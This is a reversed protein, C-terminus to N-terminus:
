IGKTRKQRFLQLLQYGDTRSGIPILNGIGVMNLIVLWFLLWVLWAPGQHQAVQCIGWSCVVASVMEMVPGAALICAKEWRAYARKAPARTGTKQEWYQREEESKEIDLIVEGGGPLPCFCFQTNWLRGITIHWFKKRDPGVYLAPVWVGLLRAVLWHGLEHTLSSVYVAIIFMGELEM